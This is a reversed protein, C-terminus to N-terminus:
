KGALKELDTWTLLTTSMEESSHRPYAKWFVGYKCVVLRSADCSM